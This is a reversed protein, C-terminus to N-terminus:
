EQDQVPQLFGPAFILLRYRRAVSRVEVFGLKLRQESPRCISRVEIPDIHGFRRLGSQCLMSGIVEVTCDLCHPNIQRGFVVWRLLGPPM